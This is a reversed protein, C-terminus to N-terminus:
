RAERLRALRAALTAESLPGLHTDRLRGQADYFLTTPMARTGVARALAGGPDLLVNDLALGQQALFRRVAADSEGQDVFVFAFDREAAQAAALTPMERVCPPCWTAWLNLVVPRGGALEDLSAQAGDLTHLPVAPLGAPPQALLQLGLALGSWVLAGAFLGAALPVRAQVRRRLRWAGYLLAALLGVGRDFGGDRLDLASWPQARYSEFWRAVFALRAALLGVLLLDPLVAGVGAGRPVGRRRGVLAGVILTTAFAAALLLRDVSLGLPGLQVSLM